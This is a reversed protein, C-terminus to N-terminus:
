GGYDVAGVCVFEINVGHYPNDTDPIDSEDNALNFHPDALIATKIAKLREDVGSCRPDTKEYLYYYNVDIYVRHTKPKGDGYTKPNNSVIKYVVYEDNNIEVQMNEINDAKVRRLHNSLVGFPLLTDDLIQQIVATVNM